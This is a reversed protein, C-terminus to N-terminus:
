GRIHETTLFPSSDDTELKLSFFFFIAFLSHWLRAPNPHCCSNVPQTINPYIIEQPLFSELGWIREAADMIFVGLEQTQQLSTHSLTQLVLLATVTRLHTCLSINTSTILWWAHLLTLGAPRPRSDESFGAQLSPGQSTDPFKVQLCGRVIISFKRVSLTAGEAEM